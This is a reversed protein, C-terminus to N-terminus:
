QSRDREHLNCQCVKRVWGIGEQWQVWISCGCTLRTPNATISLM